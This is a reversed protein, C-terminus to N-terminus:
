GINELIIQSCKGKSNYLVAAKETNNVLNNSGFFEIVSNVERVSTEITHEKDKHIVISQTDDAVNSLLSNETWLDMDAMLIIFLLPSLKSGQPTGIKMDEEKSVQNSVNVLQKRDSLYSKMWSIAMKDFGYIQLIDLLIQHSVTDFAASLDYLLLLIENKAEKAEM